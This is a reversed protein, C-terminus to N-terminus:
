EAPRTAQRQADQKEEWEDTKDRFLQSSHLHSMKHFEAIDAESFGQLMQDSAISGQILAEIIQSPTLSRNACQNAIWSYADASLNIKIQAM